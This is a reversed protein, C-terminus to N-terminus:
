FSVKRGTIPDEVPSPTKPMSADYVKGTWQVVNVIRETSVGAINPQDLQVQMREDLRIDEETEPMIVSKGKYVKRVPNEDDM